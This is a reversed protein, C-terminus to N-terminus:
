ELHATVFLDRDLKRANFRVPVGDFLSHVREASYLYLDCRSRYRLKRQWALIGGDLPFSFFARKKCLALAKEVIARPDSAYDMFGMAIVYAFKEAFAQRMFDAQAFRCVQAAGAHAARERAIQLMTPAIDIGLVRSAGRRALEVSYHGPGCGVDLVSRGQVPECGEITLQYRLMMSRRFLRNILANWPTSRNGYIASFGHAYGDFFQSTRESSM